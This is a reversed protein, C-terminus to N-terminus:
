VVWDTIVYTFIYTNVSGLHQTHFVHDPQAALARCSFCFPGDVTSRSYIPFSRISQNVGSNNAPYHFSYLSHVFMQVASLGLWITLAVLYREM